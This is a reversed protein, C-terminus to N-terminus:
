LGKGTTVRGQRVRVNGSARALAAEVTRIWPEEILDGLRTWVADRATDGM